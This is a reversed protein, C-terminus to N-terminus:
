VNEINLCTQQSILAGPLDATSVGRGLAAEMGSQSAGSIHMKCARLQGIRTSHKIRFSSKHGLSDYAHILSNIPLALGTGYRPVAWLWPLM